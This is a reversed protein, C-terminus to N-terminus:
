GRRSTTLPPPPPKPLDETRIPCSGRIPDTGQLLSGLSTKDRWQTIVCLSSPWVSVIDDGQDRVQQNGSGLLLNRSRTWGRTQPARNRRCISLSRTRGEQPAERQRGVGGGAVGSGNGQIVRRERQGRCRWFWPQLARARSQRHDGSVIDNTRMDSLNERHQCGQREHSNSM